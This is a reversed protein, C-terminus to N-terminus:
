FLSEPMPTKRHIHKLSYVPILRCVFAPAGLMLAIMIALVTRAVKTPEDHSFGIIHNGQYRVAPKVQIEDVLVKFYKEKGSLKNFVTAITNQCDTLVNGPTDLTGFYSKITNPHPLYLYEMLAQYCASSCLYLSIATKMMAADYRQGHHQKSLLHLQDILYEVKNIESDGPSESDLISKIYSATQSPEEPLHHKPEKLRELVLEIQSFKAIKHTFSNILDNYCIKSNGKFCSLTDDKFIELSFLMRLPTEAVETVIISDNKSVVTVNLKHCFKILM